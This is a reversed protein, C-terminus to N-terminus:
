RGDGGQPLTVKAGMGEEASIPGDGDVACDIESATAARQCTKFGQISVGLGEVAKFEVVSRLRRGLSAAPEM